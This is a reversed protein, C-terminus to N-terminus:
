FGSFNQGEKFFKWCVLFQRAQKVGQEIKKKLLRAGYSKRQVEPPLWIRTRNWIGEFRAQIRVGFDSM